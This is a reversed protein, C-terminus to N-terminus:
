QIMLFALLESLSIIDPKIQLAKEVFQAPPVDVGLDIVRFGHAQLLFEFINKGVDHIDGQVTGILIHGSEDGTTKQVLVPELIEMVERFIEGAMMM